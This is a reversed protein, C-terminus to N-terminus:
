LCYYTLFKASTLFKAQVRSRSWRHNLPPQLWKKLSQSWEQELFKSDSDPDVEPVLKFKLIRRQESDPQLWRDLGSEGMNKSLSIVVCVGAVASISFHSWIRIRNKAFKKVGSGSGPGLSFTSDQLVGSRSRHWRQGQESSVDQMMKRGERMSFCTDSVAATQLRRQAAPM